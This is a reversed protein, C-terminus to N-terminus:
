TYHKCEIIKSSKRCYQWRENCINNIGMPGKACKDQKNKDAKRTLIGRDKLNVSQNHHIPKDEKRREYGGTRKDGLTYPTM